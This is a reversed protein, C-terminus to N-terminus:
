NDLNNPGFSKPLLQDLTTDHCIEGLFNVAIVQMNPNFENLVQRCAGCSLGGDKTAIFIATFNKEGESVARFVAAREACITLGYSANEVNCGQYIKGSEGVLAAGVFYRSYPCYAKEKAELSKQVLELKSPGHAFLASSVMGLYLLTKM